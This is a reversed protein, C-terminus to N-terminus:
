YYYLDSHHMLKSQMYTAIISKCMAYQPTTKVSVKQTTCLICLPKQTPGANGANKIHQGALKALVKIYAIGDTNHHDILFHQSCKGIQVPHM